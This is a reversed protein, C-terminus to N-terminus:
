RIKLKSNKVMRQLFENPDCIGDIEKTLERIKYNISWATKYTVELIKHLQNINTEGCVILYAAQLWKYLPIHSSEFITGIRITFQKKCDSCTKLGIRHSNGNLSYIRKNGCHICNAGNSWLINEVYNLAATENYFHNDEM